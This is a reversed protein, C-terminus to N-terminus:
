YLVVYSAISRCETFFIFFLNLHLRFRLSNNAKEYFSIYRLDAYFYIRSLVLRVLASLRAQM